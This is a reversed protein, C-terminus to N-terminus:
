ITATISTHGPHVTAINQKQFILCDQLVGSLQEAAQIAELRMWFSNCTHQQFLTFDSQETQRCGCEYRDDTAPGGSLDELMTYRQVM